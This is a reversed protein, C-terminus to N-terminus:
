GKFKEFASSIFDTKSLKTVPVPSVSSPSGAIVPPLKATAKKAEIYAQKQNTQPKTGKSQPQTPQGIASKIWSDLAEFHKDIIKKDASSVYNRHDEVVGRISDAVRQVMAKAAEDKYGAAKAKEILYNENENNVKEWQYKYLAEVAQRQQAIIERNPDIRKLYEQVKLDEPTLQAQPQQQSRGQVQQAIGQAFKELQELRQFRAGIEEPKGFTSFKSLRESIIKDVDTQTFTRTPTPTSQTETPTENVVPEPTTEVPAVETGNEM